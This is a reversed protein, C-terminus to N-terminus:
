KARIASLEQIRENRERADPVLERIKDYADIFRLGKETIKYQQPAQEYVILGKQELLILYSKLQSYSLYANYMIRTKSAGSRISQLMSDMIETSGRNKM